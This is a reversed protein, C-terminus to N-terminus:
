QSGEKEKKKEIFLLIKAAFVLTGYVFASMVFFAFLFAATAGLFSFLEISM